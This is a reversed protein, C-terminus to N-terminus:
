ATVTCWRTHEQRQSRPWAHKQHKNLTTSMCNEQSTSKGCVVPPKQLQARSLATTTSTPAASAKNHQPGFAKMVCRQHTAQEPLCQLLWHM